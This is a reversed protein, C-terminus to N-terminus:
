EHLCLCDVAPAMDTGPDKTQRLRYKHRCWGHKNKLCYSCRPDTVEYKAGPLWDWRKTRAQRTEADPWSKPVVGGRFVNARVTSESVSVVPYAFARWADPIWLWAVFFAAGLTLTLIWARRM